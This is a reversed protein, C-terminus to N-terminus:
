LATVSCTMKFDIVEICVTGLIAKPFPFHNGYTNNFLRCLERALELHQLQDEGIPVHTARFLLDFLFFLKNSVIQTNQLSIYM